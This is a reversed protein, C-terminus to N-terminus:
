ITMYLNLEDLLDCRPDRPDNEQMAFKYSNKDGSDFWENNKLWSEWQVAETGDNPSGTRIFNGIYNQYAKQFDQDDEDSDDTETIRSFFWYEASGHHVVQQWPLVQTTLSLFIESNRRKFKRESAPFGDTMCRNMNCYWTFDTLFKDAQPLCEEKPDDPCNYFGADKVKKLDDEELLHDLLWNWNTECVTIGPEECQVGWMMLNIFFAGENNSVDIILPKDHIEGKSFSYFPMEELMGTNIIPSYPEAIMTLRDFNGIPLFQQLTWAAKNIEEATKNKMCAVTDEDIKNRCRPSISPALPDDCCEVLNAIGETILEGEDANYYPLGQPGSFAIAKHFFNKSSEMVMHAHVSQGGASMGGITIDNENGGFYKANEAVWIMAMQQDMLGQNGSVPKDSYQVGHEDALKKQLAESFMFGFAGLRYNVSIVIVDQTAAIFAGKEPTVAITNSGFFFAGGHFYILVSLKRGSEIAEIPAHIDLYLCDETLREGSTFGQICRQSAEKAKYVGEVSDFREYNKLDREIEPAMWRREGVPPKAYPVGRLVVVEENIEHRYGQIKGLPGFDVTYWNTEDPAETSLTTQSSSTQTAQTTKTTTTSSITSTTPRQTSSTSSQTTATVSSHETTTTKDFSDSVISYIKEEVDKDYAGYLVGTIIGVSILCSFFIILLYELWKKM